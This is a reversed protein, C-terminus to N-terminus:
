GEKPVLVLHRGHEFDVAEVWVMEIPEIVDNHGIMVPEAESVIEQVVEEEIKKKRPM